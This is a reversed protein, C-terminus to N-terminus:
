GGPREARQQPSRRRYIDVVVRAPSSLLFQKYKLPTSSELTIRTYTSSPWIRVAIIQSSAAFGVKSVSLMWSAAVTQLLRRRGPNHNDDTM